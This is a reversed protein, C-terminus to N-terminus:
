VGTKTFIPEMTFLISSRKIIGTKIQLGALGTDNLVRLKLIVIDLYNAFNVFVTVKKLGCNSGINKRIDNTIFIKGYLLKLVNKVDSDNNIRDRRELFNLMKRDANLVHKKHMILGRQYKLTFIKIIYDLM